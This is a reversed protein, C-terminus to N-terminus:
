VVIRFSVAGGPEVPREGQGLLDQVTMEVIGCMLVDGAAHAVELKARVYTGEDKRQKM